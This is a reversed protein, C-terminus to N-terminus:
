AQQRAIIPRGTATAAFDVQDHMRRIPGGHKHLHTLAGGGTMASSRGTHATDLLPSDDKSRAMVEHAQALWWGATKVNDDDLRLTHLPQLRRKVCGSGLSNTSEHLPTDDSEM